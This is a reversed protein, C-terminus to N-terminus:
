PAGELARACGFMGVERFWPAILQLGIPLEEAGSGCPLSMAPLGALSAPVTFIDTLYMQLPDLSREGRRFAPTPAVPSAIVDVQAFAEEFDRRILRRVQCARGYYADYYGSSLSFTGLLIRRKVEPGFVSRAERYFRKLDAGGSSGRHGFRVGDFRALNSSAESVAILYYAAVAHRTHPLSVEVRRAGLKELRRLADETAKAVAPDLGGVFYERPVGVRLGAVPVADSSGRPIEQASTSDRPDHGWAARLVTEADSVNRALTGIQDLSSAFAILGRRSVRGYTPKVGVVGCFSAPLRVSGGTDTGLAAVCMGARVAAASGGSSGGPVRGPHTPHEVPGFASNENSSGMAFEDLNLKGIVVAGAEELREVATATYPPVYGQLIRSGATTPTGEVCLADKIGIPVGFLARGELASPGESRLSADLERARAVAREECVHLFANLRDARARKLYERTLEEVSISRSRLAGRIAEITGLELAGM